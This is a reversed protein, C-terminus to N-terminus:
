TLFFSWRGDELPFPGGCYTEDWQERTAKVIMQAREYNENSVWGDMDADLAGIIQDRNYEYQQHANLEKVHAVIEENTFSIPCPGHCEEADWTQCFNILCERLLIPGDAVGRLIRTPLQTIWPYICHSHTAAFPALKPWLAGRYARERTALRHQARIIEQEAEGLQDMGEPWPVDKRFDAPIKFVNGNYQVLAPIDSQLVSPLVSTGQWDIYTLRKFRDVTNTGDDRPVMINNSSLDAHVAVNHALREGAFRHGQLALSISPALLAAKKLLEEVLTLNQLSITRTLSLLAPAAKYKLIASEELHIAALLMDAINNWPGRDADVDDHMTRWWLRDSIPGVRFRDVAPRFNEITSADYYDDKLFLPRRQLDLSLDEKFYISGIQSFVPINMRKVDNAFTFLAARVPDGRLEYWDDLMPAGKIDEMIIYPSRVPNSPEKSYAYILPVILGDHLRMFEMTAVESATIMSANGLLNSSPIRAIATRGDEFYMRFVKNYSGEAIKNLKLCKQSGLADCAAHKLQEVDFYQYRSALEKEENYLWRGTSNNFLDNHYSDILSLCSPTPLSTPQPVPALSTLENDTVSTPHFSALSIKSLRRFIQPFAGRSKEFPKRFSVSVLNRSWM